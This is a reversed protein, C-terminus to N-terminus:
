KRKKEDNGYMCIILYPLYRSLRFMFSCLVGKRERKKGGKGGKREKKREGEMGIRPFEAKEAM